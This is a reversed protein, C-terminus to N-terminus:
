PIKSNEGLFEAVAVARALGLAINDKFEAGAPMPVNDTCGIIHLKIRGIHPELRRALALLIKQAQPTFTNNSSFLGSHFKILLYKGENSLSVGAINIKLQAIKGPTKSHAVVQKKSKIGAIEARVSDHLNAAYKKLWFGVLGLCIAIVLVISLTRVAFMWLPRGRNRALCELSAKYDKNGPNSQVA